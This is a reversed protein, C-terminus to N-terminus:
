VSVEYSNIMSIQLWTVADDWWGTVLLVGVVVLMLGGLRVVAGQHRRVFAFAGLARQYALGAVVFPLGLGIAYVASLVAGRGATADAVSM